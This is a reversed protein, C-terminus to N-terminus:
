ADEDSALQWERDEAGEITYRSSMGPGPPRRVALLGAAILAIAGTAAVAPGAALHGAGAMARVVGAAVSAIGIVGLLAIVAGALRRAARLLLVLSCLAALVGLPVALPAFLLGSTQRVDPVSIGAVQRTGEVVVWTAATGGALLLSGLVSLSIALGRRM